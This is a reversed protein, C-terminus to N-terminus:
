ENEPHNCSAQKKIKREELERFYKQSERIEVERDYRYLVTYDNTFMFDDNGYQWMYYCATKIFLDRNRATIRSNKSIDISDGIKLSDLWEFVSIIFDWFVDNGIKERYAMLESNNELRHKSYDLKM